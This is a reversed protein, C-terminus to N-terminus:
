KPQSIEFYEFTATITQTENNQGTFIGTETPSFELPQQLVRYWINGNPSTSVTLIEGQVSMRVAIANGSFPIAIRPLQLKGGKYRDIYFGKEICGVVKSCYGLGAQIFDTESAFLVLGAFQDSNNPLFSFGTEVIFDGTPATHLLLNKANGLNIYGRDCQIELTGSRTTLSWNSPNENKWRWGPELFRNFDDRFITQKDTTFAADPTVSPTLDQTTSAATAMATQTLIAAIEAIQPNRVPPQITTTCGVAFIAILISCFFIRKKM